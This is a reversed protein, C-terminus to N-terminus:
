GWTVRLEPKSGNERSEYRSLVSSGINDENRDRVLMGTNTGDLQAQVIATVDWEQWAMASGVVSSAPSGTVAPRTRWTVAYEGWPTAPDVQYVDITRGAVPTTNWLRLTAGTVRCGDPMDPLPFYVLARTNGGSLSTVNLYKNGGSGGDPSGESIFTDVGIVPTRTETGPCFAPATAVSNGTDDTRGAFAGAAPYQALVATVTVAVGAAALRLAVRL